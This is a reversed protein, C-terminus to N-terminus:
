DLLARVEPSLDEYWPFHEEGVLDLHAYALELVVERFFSRSLNLHEEDEYINVGVPEEPDNPDENYSITFFEGRSLPQSDLLGELLQVPALKWAMTLVSGLLRYEEPAHLTAVVYDVEVGFTVQFAVGEVQFEVPTLKM